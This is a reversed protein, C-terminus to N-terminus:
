YLANYPGLGLREILRARTERLSTLVHVGLFVVLGLILTALGM